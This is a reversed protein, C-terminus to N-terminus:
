NAVMLLQQLSFCQPGIVVEAFQTSTYMQTHDVHKLMQLVALKGLALDGVQPQPCSSLSSLFHGM